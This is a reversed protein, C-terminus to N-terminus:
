DDHIPLQITVTTGKGMTSQITLEGRHHEIIRKALTLGLGFGRASGVNGARMMPIFVNDLDDAPIGIGWDKVQIEIRGPVYDLKLDIPKGNAYKCANDAVNGVATQLLNPIGRVQGETSNAIFADSFQVHIVQGPYAQELMQVTDMVLDAVNVEEWLAGSDIGEIEALKLLANALDIATNLRTLAIGVSIRVGPLMNEYAMATELHGKVVALPTRLEHSAYNVFQHQSKALEQLRGLLSNFSGAIRNAENPRKGMRLRFAFDDIPAQDIQTILRDFPRMARDSLWLGSLAIVLLALVNGVVLSLVLSRGAQHGHLDYATVIAVYTKSDQVFALAVGEKQSTWSPTRYRFKILHEQRVKELFKPTPVYDNEEASSYIITDDQDFLAEYQETLTIIITGRFTPRDTLFTKTAEARRELRSMFLTYRYSSYTTYIFLSFLAFLTVVVVTFAITIRQRITM